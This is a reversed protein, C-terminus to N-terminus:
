GQHPRDAKSVFDFMEAVYKLFKEPVLNESNFNKLLDEGSYRIGTRDFLELLYPLKEGDARYKKVTETLACVVEEVTGICEFPKTKGLGILGYFDDTLEKKDLMECGFIKILERREVFPSLIISVFLCKACSCCWINKKSGANCSRFIMHYQPLSAFMKSIQLENFPRLISFYKIPLRFYKKVYDTFDKEFEYSKSYQHNVGSGIDTAENASSENSLVINDAGTLYACYLSLFAVISSFPTHGNLFGESNLRLLESDITRYTRVISNKGIGAATVTDERAKQDNVTFCKIKDKIESLLSLTVASDKGGGVPVISTGSSTFSVDEDENEPCPMTNIEVFSEIDTTIKNKFFFEGLGNYWLKKWWLKQDESLYGCKVEVRKPCAAKWYSVAEVLGLSFVVARATKDDIGNVVDSGDTMIKTTPKFSCLGDVSFDFSLLIGDKEKEIHYGDYSFVAYKKRLEEFSKGSM